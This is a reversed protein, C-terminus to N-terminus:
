GVGRATVIGTMGLAAILSWIYPAPTSWMDSDGYLALGIGLLAFGISMATAIVAISLNEPVRAASIYMAIMGIVAISGVHWSFHHLWIVEASLGAQLLPPLVLPAGLLEHAILALFSLIASMWFFTSSKPMAADGIVSPTITCYEDFSM